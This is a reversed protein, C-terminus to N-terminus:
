VAAVKGGAWGFEFVNVGAPSVDGADGRTDGSQADVLWLRRWFRAPRFVKPDEAEAGAEQIKTASDAGARDAGIDAALVLLRSGDPSWCIDEVSGTIEGLEEDDVWLSMRGQHGRDSACALRSGDPSFRPLVGPKGERLEGDVEGSWLRTEFPKGKERGTPTVTFAIRTGDPSLAVEGPWRLQLVLEPIATGTAKVATAVAHHDAMGSTTAELPAGGM